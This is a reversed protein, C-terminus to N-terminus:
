QNKTHQLDMVFYPNIGKKIMEIRECVLCGM